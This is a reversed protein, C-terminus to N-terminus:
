ATTNFTSVAPPQQPMAGRRGYTQAGALAGGISQMLGQMHAVLTDAARRLAGGRQRVQQMRELLQARLVLVRGRAPEDLRQALEGMRLPAPAQPDIQQTWAAVQQLRQKELDGIRQILGNEERCCRTLVDNDARRMAELKRDMTVLLQEHAALEDRLVTELQTLRKDM